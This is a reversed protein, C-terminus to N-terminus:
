GAEKVWVAPSVPQRTVIHFEREQEYLSDAQRIEDETMEVRLRDLLPYTGFVGRRLTRVVVPMGADEAFRAFVYSNVRNIRTGPTDYFLRALHMDAASLRRRAAYLFSDVAKQPDPQGLYGRQYLRGLRYYGPASTERFQLCHQLSAEGLAAARPVRQNFYYLDGLHLSARPMNAAAGGKLIAEIDVDPLLYPFRVAVGAAEVPMAGPQQLMWRLVRDALEPKAIVPAAGAQLSPGAKLPAAGSAPQAPKAFSAATLAASSEDGSGSEAIAEAQTASDDGAPEFDDEIASLGSVLPQDVMAVALQGAIPPLVIPDFKLTDFNGALAPKQLAAIAQTILGDLEELKGSYRYYTALDVYCAPAVDRHKECLERLRKPNGPEGVMARYWGIAAIRLEVENSQSAAQALAPANHGRDSQPFLGYLELLAADTAARRDATVPRLLLQEAEQVSARDGRRMLVRALPVTAEPRRPLVVRYWHIAQDQAENSERRGYVAALYLQADPYGREALPKLDREADDLRGSLRAENGRQLDPLGETGSILQADPSTALVPLGRDLRISGCGGLMTALAVACPVVRALVTPLKRSM